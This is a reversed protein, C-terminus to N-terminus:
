AFAPISALLVLTSVSVAATALLLTIRSRDIVLGTLLLLAGVMLLTHGIGAQFFPWGFMLLVVSGAVLLRATFTRSEANV